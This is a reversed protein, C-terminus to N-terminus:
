RPREVDSPWAVRKGAHHAELEGPTPLRGWQQVRDACWSCLWMPAELRGFVTTPGDRRVDTPEWRPLGDPTALRACSECGQAKAGNLRELLRRTRDDAVHAEPYAAAIDAARVASSVLRRLLRELELRDRRAVDPGKLAAVATPDAYSGGSHGAELSGASLGEEAEWIRDALGHALDMCLLNLADAARNALSSLEGSSM